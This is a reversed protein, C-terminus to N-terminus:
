VSPSRSAAYVMAAIFAASSSKRRWAGGGYQYELGAVNFKVIALGGCDAERRRGSAASRGSRTACTERLRSPARWGEDAAACDGDAGVNGNEHWPPMTTLTSRLYRHGRFVQDSKQLHGPRRERNGRRGCASKRSILTIKRAVDRALLQPVVDDGDHFSVDRGLCLTAQELLVHGLEVLKAALAVGVRSLRVDRRHRGHWRPPRMRAHLDTEGAGVSRRPRRKQHEPSWPASRSPRAWDGAPRNKPAANRRSCCRRYTTAAARCWRTRSFSAAPRTPVAPRFSRESWAASCAVSPHRRARARLAHRSRATTPRPRGPMM